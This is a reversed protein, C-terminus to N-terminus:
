LLEDVLWRPRYDQWDLTASDIWDAGFGGHAGAAGGVPRKAEQWEEESLELGYHEARSRLQREVGPGYTGMQRARRILWRLQHLTGEGTHGNTTPAPGNVHGAFDTM